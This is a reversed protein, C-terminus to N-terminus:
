CAAKCVAHNFTCSKGYAVAYPPVSMLQAQLDVYGLGATISPTFLSLSSFPVSIGFYVVYHLWLRSEKLTWLADQKTMSKGTSSSGEIHLRRAALAKEEPSLWSATDPYDPLCFWILFASLCSPIGELIFLWRWGLLGQDAPTAVNPYWRPSSLEMSPYSILLDSHSKGSLGGAQNM